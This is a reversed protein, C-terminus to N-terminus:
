GVEEAARVEIGYFPKWVRLAPARPRKADQALCVQERVYELGEPTLPNQLFRECGDCYEPRDAPGGGDPYPGRMRLKEQVSHKTPDHACGECYLASATGGAQLTM